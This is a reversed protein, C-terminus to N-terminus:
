FRERLRHWFKYLCIYYVAVVMSIVKLKNLLAAAEVAETAVESEAKDSGATVRSSM